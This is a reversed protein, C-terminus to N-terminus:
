YFNQVVLKITPLTTPDPLVNIAVRRTVPNEELVPQWKKLAVDGCVTAQVGIEALRSKSLPGRVAISQFSKLVDAWSSLSFNDSQEKGCSGAGTGITHFPVGQLALRAVKAQWM